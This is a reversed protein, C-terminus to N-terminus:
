DGVVRVRYGDLRLVAVKKGVLPALMDRLEVPFAFDGNPFKAICQCNEIGVELLVHLQEMYEALHHPGPDPISKFANCDNSMM